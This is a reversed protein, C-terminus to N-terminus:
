FEKTSPDTPEWSNCKSPSPAPQILPPDRVAKVGAVVVCRSTLCSEWHPPKVSSQFAEPTPLQVRPLPSCPSVCDQSLYCTAKDCIYM